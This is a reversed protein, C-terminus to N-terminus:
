ALEKPVVLDILRAGGPRLNNWEAEFELTALAATPFKRRLRELDEGESALELALDQMGPNHGILMVSTIGGPIERIRALMDEAEAAYLADIIGTEADGIAPVIRSLTQRARLASSCLVLDPRIGSRKLHKAIKEAARKGREALPRDRDPLGPDDWSSKAHRLLYLRKM